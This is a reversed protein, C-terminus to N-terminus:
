VQVVRQTRAGADDTVPVRVKVQKARHSRKLNLKVGLAGQAEVSGGANVDFEV